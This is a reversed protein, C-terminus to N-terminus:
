LKKVLQAVYSAIDSNHEWRVTTWGAAKGPSERSWPKHDARSMPRWQGLTLSASM